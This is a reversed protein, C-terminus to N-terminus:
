QADNVAIEDFSRIKLALREKFFRVGAFPEGFGNGGLAAQAGDVAAHADFADDGVESRAVGFFQEGSMVDEEVTGIIELRAKEQIIGGYFEADRPYVSSDDATIADRHGNARARSGAECTQEARICIAGGNIAARMRWDRGAGIFGTVGDSNEVRSGSYDSGDFGGFGRLEKDSRIYTFIRPEDRKIDPGASMLGDSDFAVGCTANANGVFKAMEFPLGLGVDGHAPSVRDLDVFAASAEIECLKAPADCGDGGIDAVIIKKQAETDRRM